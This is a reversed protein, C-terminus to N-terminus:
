KPLAKILMYLVGKTIRNMVALMEMIQSIGIQKEGKEHVSVKKAFDTIRM